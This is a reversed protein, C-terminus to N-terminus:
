AGKKEDKEQKFSPTERSNQRSEGLNSMNYLGRRYMGRAVGSVEGLYVKNCGEKKNTKM